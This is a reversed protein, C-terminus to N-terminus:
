PTEAASEDTSGRSELKIRQGVQLAQADLDPNLEQIREVSVGTKEAVSSLIDGPKVVYVRRRKKSSSTRKSDGKTTSGKTSEVRATSTGQQDAGSDSRNAQVVLLVAAAAAVLAIPALFRAPSRRRSM